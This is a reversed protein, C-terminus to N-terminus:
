NRRRRRAVLGLGSLITLVVGSPEPVPVIPVLAAEKKWGSASVALLSKTNRDM